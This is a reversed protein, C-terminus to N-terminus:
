RGEALITVGLWSSEALRFGFASQRYGIASLRYGFPAAM